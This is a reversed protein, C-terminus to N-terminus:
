QPEKPQTEPHATTHSLKELYRAHYAATQRTGAFDTTLVHDLQGALVMTPWAPRRSTLASHGAAVAEDLCGSGAQALGLILLSRGYGSPNERRQRTEPEHSRASLGTPPPSPRRTTASWSCHHLPTPRTRPSPSPSHAPRRRTLLFGTSQGPRKPARASWTRLMESRPQLACKRHQSSPM